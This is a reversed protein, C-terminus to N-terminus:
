SVQALHGVPRKTRYDLKLPGIGSKVYLCMFRVYIKRPMVFLRLLNPMHGILEALHAESYSTRNNTYVKLTRLNGLVQLPRNVGEEIHADQTHQNPTHMFVVTLFELNDAYSSIAGIVDRIRVKRTTEVDLRLSTLRPFHLQEDSFIEWIDTLSGYLQLYELSPYYAGGKNTPRLRTGSMCQLRSRQQSSVISTLCGLTKMSAVISPTLLQCLTATFFQLTHMHPLTATLAEQFALLMEPDPMDITLHTIKETLSPVELIMAYATQFEPEDSEEGTFPEMGEFGEFGLTM